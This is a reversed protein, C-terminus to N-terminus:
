NESSYQMFLIEELLMPQYGNSPLFYTPDVESDDILSVEEKQIPNDSQSNDVSIMILGTYIYKQYEESNFYNRNSFRREINNFFNKIKITDLGSFLNMEKTFYFTEVKIGNELVEFEDCDYDNIKLNKGTKIIRINQNISDQIQKKKLEKEAIKRERPSLTEFKKDLIKKHALELGENFEKFSGQWYLRSRHFEYLVTEKQSDIIISIESNQIKYTSGKVWIKEISPKETNNISKEIYWDAFLAYNFILFSIILIKILYKTM